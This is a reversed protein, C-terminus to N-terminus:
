ACPLRPSPRRQDVTIACWAGEAVGTQLDRGGAIGEKVRYEKGNSRNYIRLAKKRTKCLALKHCSSTISEDKQEARQQQCRRTREDSV